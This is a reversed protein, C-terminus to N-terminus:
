FTFRVLYEKAVVNTRGYTEHPIEKKKVQKYVAQTSVKYIKAIESFTYFKKETSNQM